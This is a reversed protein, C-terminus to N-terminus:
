NPPDKKKTKCGSNTLAEYISLLGAESYACDPECKGYGGDTAGDESSGATSWAEAAAM